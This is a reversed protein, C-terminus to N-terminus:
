YYPPAIASYEYPAVRTYSALLPSREGRFPLPVQLGGIECMHVSYMSGVCPSKTYQRPRINGPHTTRRFMQTTNSTLMRVALWGCDQLFVNMEVVLILLVARLVSYVTYLLLWLFFFLFSLPRPKVFEEDILSPGGVALDGNNSVESDVGSTAAGHRRRPIPMVLVTAGSGLRPQIVSYQLRERGLGSM